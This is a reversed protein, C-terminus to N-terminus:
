RTLSNDNSRVALKVIVTTDPGGNRSYKLNCDDNVNMDYIIRRLDYMSNIIRGNLELLVDGDRIGSAYAPGAPDTKTVIVGRNSKVNSNLINSVGNDYAYLGLYPTQYSGSTTFRKIINLSYNIPVAFGLGEASEVKVTNIGVVEGRANLLPGGSNGPNISADTQILGEMYNKGGADEVSITRNLASIIGATVTRQFQLGLPNGIALAREGVRLKDADGLMASKLDTKEVKIIALDLTPDSWMRKGDVAEGTYLTVKIKAPNQGIVHHNTLIFGNPSIAIGSGVSWRQPINPNFVDAGKSSEATSIGVVSPIVSDIITSFDANANNPQAGTPIPSTQPIINNGTSLRRSANPPQTNDIYWVSLMSSIAATAAILMLYGVLKRLRMLLIDGKMHKKIIKVMHYSQICCLNKIKSSSM